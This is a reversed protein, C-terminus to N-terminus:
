EEVTWQGTWDSQCQRQEKLPSNEIQTGCQREAMRQLQAKYATVTSNWVGIQATSYVM